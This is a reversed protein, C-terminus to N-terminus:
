ACPIHCCPPRQPATARGPGPGPGPGAVSGLGLGAWNGLRAAARLRRAIGAAALPALGTAGWLGAGAGAGALRLTASGRRVGGGGGGGEEGGRGPGWTGLEREAVEDICPDAALLGGGVAVALRAAVAKRAGARERAAAQRALAEAAAADPVALHLALPADHRHEGLVHIGSAARPAPPLPLPAAAACHAAAAPLATPCRLSDACRPLAARCRLTGLCPLWAPRRPEAPLPQAPSPQAPCPPPQPACGRHCRPGAPRQSAAPCMKQRPGRRYPMRAHRRRTASRPRLGAGGGRARSSGSAAACWRRGGSLRRGGAARGAGRRGGCGCTALRQGAALLRAQDVLYKRAEPAGKVAVAVLRAAVGRGVPPRQQRHVGPRAAPADVAGVEGFGLVAVSCRM